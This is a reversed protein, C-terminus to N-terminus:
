QEKADLLRQSVEAVLCWIGDLSFHTQITADFLVTVRAPFEPDEKWLVYALPVKPFVTLVFAKDGFPMEVGGLRIGAQSFGEADKGFTRWIEEVPLAHPGRFFTIGGKLEKESVWNSGPRGGKANLLYLLVMLYFNDRFHEEEFAEGRRCLIKREEPVITYQRHLSPLLYGRRNEDYLAETRQCIEDPHSKGLAEWYIAHTPKEDSHNTNVRERGKFMNARKM